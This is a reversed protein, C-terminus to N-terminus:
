LAQVLPRIDNMLYFSGTVLLIPEPKTLLKTLAQAPSNVREITVSAHEQALKALVTPDVSGHPLDEGKSFTTIIIDNTLKSLEKLSNELRYGRGDAFSVLTAVRQDPFQVRISEILAHLKQANHAGDLIITKNKYHFTEMRAPILTHAAQLLQDDTLKNTKDRELVYGAAARALTFNRKQFLPLFDFGSTPKESELIHLTAHQETCRKKFVDLVVEDQQHCFVVNEPQIIGAKQEAIEPLTSGLRDIHDLGIDTIVCVKDARDIVNTGDLLGGLGVEVVAYDVKRKAFEWFAFAILLEFYSPTLHSTKIIDLFKSLEACFEAEPMPVLNFQVRENMEAVHPSVTLGVQKGAAQLLAAVYYSTSTKGSTGAAHVIKLNNQPNGLFAMLKHMLTLNYKVSSVPPVFQALVANAEAFDKIEPM